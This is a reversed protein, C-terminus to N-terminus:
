RVNSTPEHQPVALGTLFERIAPAFAAAFDDATRIEGTMAIQAVRGHPLTRAVQEALQAPHREDMGPIVLAPAQIASLEGVNRFSRDYGIAAAAAISAANSRPIADRVLTGIVPALDPLIPQWGAEIGETRVRRAFSEMFEIEAKKREDDEIDEVSILILGAIRDPYALAARLAITAGLGAGGVIARRVALHDLLAIVDDSYQAWTHRTPDPCASKGYGRIDPLAITRLDALRHALPLFMEHDPGGGHLLVLPPATRASSDILTASLPGGDRGRYEFERISVSSRLEAAPM